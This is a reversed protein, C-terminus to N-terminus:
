AEVLDYLRDALAELQARNELVTLWRPPLASAGYRAGLLAGTVAANTDADQGLNAITIIGEELSDCHELAWFALAPANLTYGSTYSTLDDRDKARVEQVYDAVIEAHAVSRMGELTPAEGSLLTAIAWNLAVCSEQCRPDYHTILCTNRSDARLRDPNHRRFLGIPACRMVGGNGASTGGSGEWARKGAEQWGCGRALYLIATSTLAGVDPPHSEFWHLFREAIDEPVVDAHTVISELICLMMQTDDTYAGQPLGLWGGGKIDRLEGYKQAITQAWENELTAGLADGCALGLICGRFQDRLTNM